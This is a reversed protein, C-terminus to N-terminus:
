EMDAAYLAAGLAGCLQAKESIILKTGLREELTKVLGQNQAVGGTMMYAEEGGVRKVLAATKAAVAKNLGHVIDDPKKNQAILSVVESEAFVTCMSSITIDEDYSLGAKGIEDLTMEMTRAMMELFHGTGAACKDNMVFNKVSGDADLRIVKSDQGGIDVVTRVSPNLFHAGRAHCTIETISKDGVQIATRGYGTTVVADIDERKLHAQELAQELAREAGIAAGAGTPLIIGAVIEKEKNLIVVDTSTSGSDIGAFYGKGMHAGKEHQGPAFNSGDDTGAMNGDLGTGDGKGASLDPRSINKMIKPNLALSEAFAELRTLLQGSSQVTYDSEIKLIPVDTHSKIDAYEFSYFDCFKVTHYIIGKLSPDQYLQKRGATDLMRMCPLQGLLEGAYWDMLADFDAEHCLGDNAIQTGADPGADQEQPEAFTWAVSRNNVCTENVVPLPMSKETMEFLEDGMRAGLVALHPEQTREKPQFAKCFAEYDFERGKYEGYKQALDKLQAAVRERSCITDARAADGTDASVPSMTHLMDLMYLFDLQGSDELLDYVSRITDCCNVLVLEKVQGALVAELVSKGFGCINPHAIEDAYDFGEPMTNLNECEGGFATLLELPTYKCVYYTKKM